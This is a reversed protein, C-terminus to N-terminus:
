RRLVLLSRLRLNVWTPSEAGDLLALRGCLVVFIIVSSVVSLSP